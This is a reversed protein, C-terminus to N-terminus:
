VSKKYKLDSMIVTTTSTKSLMIVETKGSNNLNFSYNQVTELCTKAELQAENQWFAHTTNPLFNETALHM